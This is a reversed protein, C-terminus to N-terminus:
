HPKFIVECSAGIPAGSPEAYYKQAFLSRGEARMWKLTDFAGEEQLFRILAKDMEEKVHPAFSMNSHFIEGVNHGIGAWSRDFYKDAERQWISHIQLEFREWPLFSAISRIQTLPFHGQYGIYTFGRHERPIGSTPADPSPPAAASDSPGFHTAVTVALLVIPLLWPPYRTSKM